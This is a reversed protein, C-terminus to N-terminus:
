GPSVDPFKLKLALVYWYEGTTDAVKLENTYQDMDFVSLIKVVVDFDKDIKKANKLSIYLDATVGDHSTFYSTAWKRLTTILTVEHKEFTARKGSYTKPQFGSQEETSFLAWSGNWHVSVNFQRQNRYM